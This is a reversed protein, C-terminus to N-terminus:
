PCKFYTGKLRFNLLVKKLAELKLIGGNEKVNGRLVIKKEWEREVSLGNLLYSKRKRKARLANGWRL